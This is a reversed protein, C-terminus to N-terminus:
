LANDLIQCAVKDSEGFFRAVEGETHLGEAQTLLSTYRNKSSCTQFEKHSNWKFNISFLFKSIAGYTLTEVLKAIRVHFITCM